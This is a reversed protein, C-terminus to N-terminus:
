KQEDECMCKDRVCSPTTEDVTYFWIMIKDGGDCLTCKAVRQGASALLRQMAESLLYAGIETAFTPSSVAVTFRRYLVYRPCANVMLPIFKYRELIRFAEICRWQVPETIPMKLTAHQQPSWCDLSQPATGKISLAITLFAAPKDLSGGGRVFCM